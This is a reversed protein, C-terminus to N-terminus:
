FFLLQKFCEANSHRNVWLFRLGDVTQYIEMRNGIIATGAAYPFYGAGHIWYTSLNIYYVRNTIDKTFYIRDQGDYAYMSGSTLTEIMPTYYMLSWDDSNTDMRDIGAVGGGRASYLYKGRKTIDSTGYAWQLTCGTGRAPAALISYSTVNNIPATSTGFTITGTTATIGTIALEQTVGTAGTLFKVRKGVFTNTNWACLTLSGSVAGTNPVSVTITTTGAGSVVQAGVSIGTGSTLYWGTCGAPCASGLTITTSQASGSNGTAQTWFANADVITTTSGGTALGSVKLNDIGENSAGLCEREAIVYRTIGNAMASGMATIVTLSNGTNNTIQMSQGLALGTTVTVSGYNGYIIRNGWPSSFTITGSVTATNVVSLTLNATGAGSIVTAGLGIGTGSAYWGNIYTPTNGSMTATLAGSTGSSATATASPAWANFTIIGSPTATNAVSLTLTTTGAGSVVRCYESGTTGIGTGTVYWGNINSPTNSAFTITSGPYDGGTATQRHDKSADFVVTTSQTGIGAASGSPTGSMTYTFTTVSPISTIQFLGDYYAADAGTAGHISVYQGVILNHSNVTTATATTSSRTIGSIAIPPQEHINHNEDSLMACMISAIGLEIIRGHSLQDLDANRFLFVEASGGIVFYLNNSDGQISYVSTTDPQINWGIYTTLSNATNSAIARLQGAGKGALIRIAFNAWQNTAWNKSSDTVTKVNSATLTGADFGVIEYRSTNDPPTSLTAFTLTNSTNSAIKSIQDKGTGSYIFLYYNAWQNTTWNKTTDQLTTTSHTGLALGIEWLSANETKRELCLDTPAAALMNTLTPKVYWTDALVDYYQMTFFPTTAAGSLLWIGGSQIVYRSTNDPTTTWASDITIESSEIQYLSGAVPATWTTHCWPDEPHRNVDGITLVTASSYLIKRVQNLGTGLIVRVSYGVWKNLNMTTGTLGSTWTKTTDTLSTAAGATAAGFDAIVPNAVSTIYREQGAGKGSIIRIKFGAASPGFTLGTTLTTSTASIVRGFYGQNGAFRMSSATVPANLPSSQQEYTDTWTDYRWFNTANILYYIYRGNVENFTSNDPTCSCSLASSSAPAFRCWEWAPTDVQKRLQNNTLSM